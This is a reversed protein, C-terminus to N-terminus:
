NEQGAGPRRRGGGGFGGAGFGRPRLESEPIELKEGKMKELSEKQEATLVDMLKTEIQKRMEQMKRGMEAFRAQREEPSLDRMGAFAEQMQKAAEEGISKLKAIQEQTMKLDHQIEKDNLAGVGMRQLAIGKLREIQHPLLIEEIARKTEEARAEGKKRMEEMRGKREEESMDRWNGMGSFMERMAQQTKEQLEKLKAKQEDVLELEKQVTPTNLLFGYMASVSGGWGMGAGMGGGMMGFGGFGFGPGGPRPGKPPPGAGPQAWASVCFAVSALLVLAITAVRFMRSMMKEKWFLCAHSVFFKGAVLPDALREGM